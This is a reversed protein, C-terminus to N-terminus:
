RLNALVPTTVSKSLMEKQFFYLFIKNKIKSITATAIHFGWAAM